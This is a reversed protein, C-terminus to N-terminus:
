SPRIYFKVPCMLEQHVAADIVDLAQKVARSGHIDAACRTHVRAFHQIPPALM